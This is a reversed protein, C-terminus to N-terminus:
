KEEKTEKTSEELLYLLKSDFLDKFKQAIFKENDTASELQKKTPDVLKIHVQKGDDKIELGLKVM